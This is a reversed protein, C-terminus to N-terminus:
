KNVRSLVKFWVKLLLSKLEHLSSNPLYTIWFYGMVNVYHLEWRILRMLYINLKQNANGATISMSCYFLGIEKWWAVIWLFNIIRRIGVQQRNKNGLKSKAGNLWAVCKEVIYLLWCIRDGEHFCVKRAITYETYIKM